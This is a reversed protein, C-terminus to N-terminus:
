VIRRFKKGCQPNGCQYTNREIEHTNESKTGCFPCRVWEFTPDYRFDKHEFTPLETDGLQHACNYCMRILVDDVHDYEAILYKAPVWHKCIPCWSFGVGESKM